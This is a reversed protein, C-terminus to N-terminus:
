KEVLQDIHNLIYNKREEISMGHLSMFKSSNKKIFDETKAIVRAPNGAIIVGKEKISKTVVSGAAVICNDPINVGLLLISGSGIFCSNGISIKGCMDSKINRGLLAGISADHTLLSVNTSITCRNGISILFPENSVIRSFIHTDDGIQMGQSRYNNIIVKHGFIKSFLKAIFYNM